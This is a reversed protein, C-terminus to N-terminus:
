SLVNSIFLLYESINKVQLPLGRYPSSARPAKETGGEEKSSRGVRRGCLRRSRRSDTMFSTRSFNPTQRGCKPCYQFLMPVISPLIPATSPCCQHLISVTNPCCQSLIPAINSSRQCCCHCCCSCYCARHVRQALRRWQIPLSALLIALLQM